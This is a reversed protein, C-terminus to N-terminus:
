YSLEMQLEKVVPECCRKYKKNSGCVCPENRGPFKFGKLVFKELERKKFALSLKEMRKHAYRYLQKYSECFYEVGGGNDERTRPCGGHCLSLFECSQCQEPLAPKKELFAGMREHNIISELSDTGINGLKYDEHIFFIVHILM